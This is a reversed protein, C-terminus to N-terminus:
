NNIIRQIVESVSSYNDFSLKLNLIKKAKLTSPLYRDEFDSNIKELKLDVKYKNSLYLALKRIDVGQDSGVNYIPCNTKANKVIELLWRSLDHEHMYSRIVRHNSKIEINKKNLISNIFNGVAYSKDRPLYRGVFAFCRAISVKIKLESLKQFVRENKLKTLSYSNKDTSKFSIRKNNILYNETLKKINKPQQGYVAGSSTYLIKSKSHYKKALKYYNCVSKHDEVYDHNIACYIIYDAFPIKKLKSIDARIAKIEIRNNLKKKINIKKISRSLLFIKNIKSSLTCNHIYDIISKAFFGTGGIILLTKAQIL